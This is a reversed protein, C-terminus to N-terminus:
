YNVVAPLKESVGDCMVGKNDGIAVVQMGSCSLYPQWKQGATPTNTNVYRIQCKPCKLIKDDDSNSRLTDIICLLNEKLAQETSCIYSTGVMNHLQIDVDKYSTKDVDGALPNGEFSCYASVLWGNGLELKYCDGFGSTSDLLFGGAKLIGQIGELSM